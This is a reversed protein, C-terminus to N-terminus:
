IVHQTGDANPPALEIDERTYGDKGDSQLLLKNPTSGWSIIVRFGEKLFGLIAEQVEPSKWADPRKPDYVHCTFFLRQPNHVIMVGSKDPRLEVPTEKDSRRALKIYMCEFSKCTGPRGKYITCGNDEGNLYPCLVGAPKPGGPTDNVQLIKCCVTCGGCSSPIPSPRTFDV